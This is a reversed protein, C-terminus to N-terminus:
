THPTTSREEVNLVAFLEDLYSHLDSGDAQTHSAISNTFLKLTFIETAEAFYCFLLRSLFM